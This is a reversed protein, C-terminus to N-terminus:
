NEHSKTYSNEHIKTYNIQEEFHKTESNYKSMIFDCIGQKNEEFMVTNLIKLSLCLYYTAFISTPRFGPDSLQFYENDFRSLLESNDLLTSSPLERNDLQFNTTNSHQASNVFNNVTLPDFERIVILNQSNSITSLFLPLILVLIFKKSLIKNLM